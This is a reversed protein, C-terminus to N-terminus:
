CQRTEASVRENYSSSEPLAEGPQDRTLVFLLHSLLLLSSTSRFKEEALIKWGGAQFIRYWEERLRHHAYGDQSRFNGLRDLIRTVMGQLGPLLADEMVIILRRSVRGAEGLIKEPEPSHHLVFLLLVADFQSRAFPLAQGAALLFPMGSLNYNEHDVATVAVKRSRALNKGTLGHGSGLDLVQSYPPIYKELRQAFERGRLETYPVFIRDLIM